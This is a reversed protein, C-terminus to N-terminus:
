PRYPFTAASFAAALAASPPVTPVYPCLSFGTAGQRQALRLGDVQSAPKTPMGLIVHGALEPKLWGQARLDFAEAGLATADPVPPLLVYDAWDAPGTRVPSALMLRLLPDVATAARYINLAQRSGPDLTAPDLAARRQRVANKHASAASPPQGPAEVLIGDAAAHRLMDAYLVPVGAEGVAAVAAQLPLHLYVEVGARSRIQWAARSLLDARM